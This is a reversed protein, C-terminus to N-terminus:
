SGVALITWKKNISATDQLDRRLRRCVSDVLRNQRRSNRNGPETVMGTTVKYFSCVSRPTDEGQVADVVGLERVGNQVGKGVRWNGRLARQKCRQGPNVTHYEDIM